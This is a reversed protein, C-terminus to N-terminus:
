VLESPRAIFLIDDRYRVYLEVGYQALVSSDDVLGREALNLFTGDAADGSIKQGQGSGQLVLYTGGALFRVFQNTLITSM